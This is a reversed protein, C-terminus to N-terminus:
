GFFFLEFFDFSPELQGSYVDYCCTALATPLRCAVIIPLRLFVTKLFANDEKEMQM